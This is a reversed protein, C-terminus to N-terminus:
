PAPSDGGGLGKVWDVYDSDGAHLQQTTEEARRKARRSLRKTPTEDTVPAPPETKDAAPKVVPKAPPEAPKAAPPEAPKAAPPEAAPVPASASVKAAAKGVAVPVAQTTQDDNKAPGALDVTSEASDGTPSATPGTAWAADDDPAPEATAAPEPRERREPWRAYATTASVAGGVAVSLLAYRYASTQAGGGPAGILYAAAVLAPGCAGSVATAVPPLAGLRAVGGVAFALLAPVGLLLIPLWGNSLPLLGPRATAWANGAGITWVASILGALWLWVVTSLLNGSVAPVYLTAISAAFGVLLGAVTAITAILAPNGPEPVDAGHAPHLVLPLMIAAGVLAAFTVALRVGINGPLGLRRAAEAGSRAGTLVAVAGMFALWTLQWHWAAGSRFPAGWHVIGLGYGVGLQGAGALLGAGLAIALTRAWTRVAM